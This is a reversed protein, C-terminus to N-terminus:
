LGHRPTKFPSPDYGMLGEPRPPPRSLPGEFTEIIRM